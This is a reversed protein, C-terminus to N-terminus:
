RAPRIRTALLVAETPVVSRRTHLAAIGEMNRKGSSRDVIQQERVLVYGRLANCSLTTATYVAQRIAEYCPLNRACGGNKTQRPQSFGPVFIASVPFPSPTHAAYFGGAAGM